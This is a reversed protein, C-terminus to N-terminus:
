KKRSGVVLLLVFGMVGGGAAKMEMGKVDVM